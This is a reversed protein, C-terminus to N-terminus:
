KKYSKLVLLSLGWSLYGPFAGDDLEAQPSPTGDPTAQQLTNGRRPAVASRGRRRLAHARVGACAQPRMASGTRQGHAQM